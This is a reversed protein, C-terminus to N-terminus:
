LLKSPVKRSPNRHPNAATSCGHRYAINGTVTEKKKFLLLVLACPIFFAVNYETEIMAMNVISPKKIVSIKPGLVKYWIDLLAMKLIKTKIKNRMKPIDKRPAKSIVNGADHVFLTSEFAPKFLKEPINKIASVNTNTENEQVTGKIPRM